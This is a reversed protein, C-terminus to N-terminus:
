SSQIEKDRIRRDLHRLGAEDDRAARNKCGVKKPLSRWGCRSRIDRLWRSMDTPRYDVSNTGKISNCRSCLPQINSIHHPGGKALPVVHDPVLSRSKARCCLCRSYYKKVLAA